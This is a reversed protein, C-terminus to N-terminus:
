WQFKALRGWDVDLAGSVKPKTVPRGSESRRSLYDVDVEVKVASNVQMTIGLGAYPADVWRGCDVGCGVAAPVALRTRQMGLRGELGLAETAQWSVTGALRGAIVGAGFGTFQGRQEIQSVWGIRLSPSDTAFKEGFRVGKVWGADNCAGAGCASSPQSYGVGVAVFKESASAGTGVLALVFMCPIVMKMDVESKGKSYNSSGHFALLGRGGVRGALLATRETGSPQGWESRV